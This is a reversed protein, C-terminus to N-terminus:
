FKIDITQYSRYNAITIAIVGYLIPQHGHYLHKTSSIAFLLYCYSCGYQNGQKTYKQGCCVCGRVICCVCTLHM